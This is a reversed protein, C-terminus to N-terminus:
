TTVFSRKSMTLTSAQVSSGAGHSSCNSMRFRPFRSNKALNPWMYDVTGAGDRKAVAVMENFLAKGNPDKIGSLNQGDLKPQMPHMIMTPGLDNIWFYDSQRYRLTRVQELAARQAQETTMQGGTELRHYHDFIGAATEVVNRTMEQKGKYLDERVQQIMLMGLVFLMLTAVVPILWLRKSIPYKRLLNM